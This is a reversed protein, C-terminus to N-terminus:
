LRNLYKNLIESVSVIKDEVDGKIAIDGKNIPECQAAPIRIIFTSQYTLETNSLAQRHTTSLVAKYDKVNGHLSLTKGSDNKNEKRRYLTITDNWWYRYMLRGGRYLLPIGQNDIRMQSPYDSIATHICSDLYETVPQAYSVPIVTM